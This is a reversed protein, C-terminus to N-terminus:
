ETHSKFWSCQLSTWRQPHDSRLAWPVRTQSYRKRGFRQPPADRTADAAVDRAGAGGWGSSRRRLIPCSRRTEPMGGPHLGGEM